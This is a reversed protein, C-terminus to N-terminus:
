VPYLELFPDGTSAMWEKLQSDFKDMLAKKSPDNVLNNQQYHDAQNDFLLWRGGPVSGITNGKVVVAYTYQRTRIGRYIPCSLTGMRMELGDGNTKNAPGPGTMLFTDEREPPHQKRRMIGSYDTGAKGSPVPIGALGCVTPYIDISAFIADSHGQRIGPGRVVFPVHCSEEYAYQKAYRGHSALMEGHDSTYVVITNDAMGSQELLNLVEQFQGDIGTIGGYYKQMQSRLAEDTKLWPVHNQDPELKVNPRYQLKPEESDYPATDVSPPDFPPHPPNWSIMLLWPKDPEDKREEIFKGAQKTMYIPNWVKQDRPLGANPDTRHGTAPDYYYADYHSNTDYWILWDDIGFRMPSDAPPIGGPDGALHWKGIYGVHYPNEKNEKFARTFGNENIGSQAPWRGTMLMGRHPTCLPYNSICTEMSFNSKRFADLHPAVVECFDGGQQSAARHQDSFV